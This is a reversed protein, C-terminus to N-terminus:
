YLQASMSSQQFVNWDLSRYIFTIVYESIASIFFEINLPNITTVHRLMYYCSTSKVAMCALILSKKINDILYEADYM